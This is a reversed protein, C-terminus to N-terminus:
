MSDRIPFNPSSWTTLDNPKDVYFGNYQQAFADIVFKKSYINLQFDFRTLVTAFTLM